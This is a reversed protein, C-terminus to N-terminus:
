SGHIEASPEGPFSISGTYSEPTCVPPTEFSM